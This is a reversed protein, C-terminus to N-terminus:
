KRNIAEKSLLIFYYMEHGRCKNSPSILGSFWAVRLKFYYPRSFWWLKTDWVIALHVDKKRRSDANLSM